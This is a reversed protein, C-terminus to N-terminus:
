NMQAIMLYRDGTQIVLPMAPKGPIKTVLIKVDSDSISALADRLYVGSYSVETAGTVDSPVSEMASGVENEVRSITLPKGAECTLNVRKLKLAANDRILLLRDIARMLDQRGVTVSAVEFEPLEYLKRYGPYEGDVLRTVIEIDDCVISFLHKTFCCTATATKGGPLAAAIKDVNVAPVIASTIEEGSVTVCTSMKLSSMRHGNYGVVNLHESDWVDLYISALSPRTQDEMACFGTARIAGSLVEAGVNFSVMHKSTAVPMAPFATPEIGHLTYSNGRCTVTAVHNEDNVDITLMEGDLARVLPTLMDAPLAITGPRVIEIAETKSRLHLVTNTAHALVTKGEGTTLVIHKLDTLASSSPVAGSIKDLASAFQQKPLLVKM